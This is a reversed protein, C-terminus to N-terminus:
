WDLLVGAIYVFKEMQIVCIWAAGATQKKKSWAMGINCKFVHRPPRKWIVQDKQKSVVGVGNRETDLLQALLWLKAEEEAKKWTQMGEYLLGEFLLSNRNKWIYWLTWPFVQTIEKMSGRSNMVSYLHNMNAYLTKECFGGPPSPFESIAWVQRALTCSFLVHNISEGDMGCIQCCGDCKMGRDLLCDNVALANSLAKWIFVKIKPPAKTCWVQEKLPNLSPNATQELILLKNKISFALDYGTKVSYVGSRMRKWVWSDKDSVVPQNQCLIEIDGPVFLEELKNRDWRRIQPDILDPVKLNVNFFRQRRFPPRCIGEEDELWPESWVSLSRGDGISRKLGKSLLDRGHFISRWAYSPTAGLPASLFASNEFYKVKLVRTMLCVEFHILRWAQKALLAQNFCELDKPLCMKEWSIWHIKRKHEVSSWWFNSM